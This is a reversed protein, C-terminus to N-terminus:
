VEPWSAKSKSYHMSVQGSTWIKWIHAQAMQMTACRILNLGNMPGFYTLYIILIQFLRIKRILMLQFIFFILLHEYQFLKNLQFQFKKVLLTSFLIFFLNFQITHGHITDFLITLDIFLLLFLNFINFLFNSSSFSLSCSYPM